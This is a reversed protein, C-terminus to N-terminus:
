ALVWLDSAFSEFKRSFQKPCQIVSIDCARTIRPWIGRKSWQCTIYTLPKEVFYHEGQTVRGVPSSCLSGAPLPRTFPRCSLPIEFSQAQSNPLFLYKTPVHFSLTQAKPGLMMPLSAITYLLSCLMHYGDLGESGVTSRQHYWTEKKSTFNIKSSSYLRTPHAALQM